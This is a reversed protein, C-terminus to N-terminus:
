RSHSVLQRLLAIGQVDTARPPRPDGTKEEYLQQASVVRVHVGELHRWQSPLADARWRWVPILHTTIDPPTRTLFVFSVLVGDKQFDTQEPLRRTVKFGAQPLLREIKPRHRLWAVADVDHHPRTVAGVLFDVAWGGRLWFRVRAPSLIDSLEGIVRLHTEHGEAGSPNMAKTPHAKPSTESICRAKETPGGGSTPYAALSNDRHPIPRTM